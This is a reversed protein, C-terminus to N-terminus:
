TQAIYLTMFTALDVFNIQGDHNFDCSPDLIGNQNFNIYAYVFYVLDDFGVHGEHYFDILSYQPIASNVTLQATSSVGASTGTITWKGSNSSTYVNGTWNGGAGSSMSWSITNTIDWINANTDSATAAYAQSSGATVAGSAPTIAISNVVGHNVTLSAEDSLGSSTGSVTWDGAKCSTFVNNSWSGGASAEISWITSNTVDWSNGYSDYATATFSQSSGADLTQSAPSIAFSNIGGHNVTLPSTGSLAAVTATVTWSGATAPFYINSSWSGGANLDISWQASSTVDWSNGYNDIADATFIENSGAQVTQNYPSVIISTAASHNVTLFASNSLTGSTGTVNWTGSNSSTYVNGLWSGGADSDITWAVSGTADWTNGCNDIATATFAEASGATISDSTPGINISVASGHDVQLSATATAGLYTGTVTWNGANNSTYVNGNWSGGAGTDIGWTTLGTVDWMNGTSDSATATFNQTAGATTSGLTPNIALNLVNGHNITLSTTDLLSGMTATVTWNGANASDYTNGNWSGGAGNSVAWGVSNSVTWTNGCKDIATATFVENSGASIVDPKPSIQIGIASAHSVTLFAESSLGSFTGTIAWSGANNSTYVSNTWYGGASSSAGWQTSNSVEWTNGFDDSAIATYNQSAGADISASDPGVTLGTPSAPEVILSATSTLSLGTVAITWTGASCATYTNGSTGSWSGAAGSDISFTSSSTCVWSNEFYDYATATFTQTSGAQITSIEPDVQIRIANGPNVTLTATDSFGEYNGTVTWQGAKAASYTGTNQTWSGLANSDITWNTLSTAIWSNAFSDHAQATFTQTLGANVTATKPSVTISIPSAHTVTLSATNSLSGFTGTVSWTGAAAATYTGSSQVWSGGAGSSISWVTSGTVDWTNGYLDYATAAFTTSTGAIISNSNSGVVIKIASADTVTLSATDFIGEYTGTVTWQGSAGSTYKSGSWSGGANSGITWQTSGTVDWTNGYIDSATATFTESSGAQLTATKPSITIKLVSIYGVTLSATETLGNFKATVTWIGAKAATYVNANWSGGAASDISWSTSGTVDWTNGYSDSATATFTESSGAQITATKPSITFTVASAHTVTLLATNSLSGFTGTVSWTGAAAATYTGSSQVWSGGAGSSISWVASGTVSWTNGCSDSATAAFSICSGATISSTKPSINISAATAHNVTLSASDSFGSYCGTVTWTGAQASTYVNNSWSGFAGTAISWSAQKTIDWSNGYYDTATATYAQTSGATVTATKPAIQIKTPCGPNVTIINTTTSISGDTVTITQSGATVLDFGSFTHVGKDGKTGTKFTYECQSTYPLTAKPDTSTFYVKGNFGTDVKGNSDYVTVTIGSFSQGAITSSPYGTIAFYKSSAANVIVTQSTSIAYLGAATVTSILIIVTLITASIGTRTVLRRV